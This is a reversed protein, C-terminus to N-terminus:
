APSRSSTRGCSDGHCSDLTQEEVRAELCHHVQVSSALTADSCHWGDGGGGGGAAPPVAAADGVVHSASAAKAAAPRNRKRRM